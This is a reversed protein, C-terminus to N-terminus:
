PPPQRRARAAEDAAELVPPPLEGTATTWIKTALQRAGLMAVAAVAGSVLSWAQEKRAQKKPDTRLAVWLKRLDRQLEALQERVVENRTPM